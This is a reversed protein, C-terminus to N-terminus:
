EVSLSIEGLGEIGGAVKDGAVLAGVGEPTGTMLLDGPELRVLGSLYSLAEAVNWIQKALDSDQRIGGNVSLWIRGKDPHGVESVPRLATMPASRDFGKAMDWPRGAKKAEAQLDRRTLDIGVAYGHVHDLAKGVPIDAGGKGIAVVLEIEHHLNQTAPPYPISSGSPVVADSPKTFFFPPNRDPDGGMERAHDAYNQGVCYIRRVPFTRDSGEIPLVSPALTFVTTM